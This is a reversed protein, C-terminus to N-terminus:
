VYNVPILQLKLGYYIMAPLFAFYVHISSHIEQYFSNTRKQFTVFYPAFCTETNNTEM